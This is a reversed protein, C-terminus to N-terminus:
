VLNALDGDEDATQDDNALEPAFPAFALRDAYLDLYRRAMSVASFRREFQARVAGRDLQMARRVADAALEVSPEVLLGSIGEDVLERACGRNFAVVPTGCAMAEIMTLAFPENGDFPCILAAAGGLLEAKAVDDIEGLFSVGSSTLRPALESEFWADVSRDRKGAIRLPLGLRAAIDIAKDAGKSPALRGLYAVYGQAQATAAYLTEPLGQHVTGAWNAFPLGRRQWDSTSVLPFGVFRHYVDTVDPPELPGHLTTLTRGAKDEFFPFHAMDVHFHMIDFRDKYRRVESLMSLHAALASREGAEDLDMAAERVPILHARTRADASSFLTVEHGLGVLADCLHAVMRGIGGHLRPPVAEYLPAIQAIKM